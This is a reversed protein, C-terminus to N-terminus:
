GTVTASVLRGEVDSLSHGGLDGDDDLGGVVDELQRAGGDGRVPLVEVTLTRELPTWVTM